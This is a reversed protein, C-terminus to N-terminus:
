EIGTERLWGDLIPNAKGAVETLSSEVDKTLTEGLLSADKVQVGIVKIESPLPVGCRRGLELALPIGVSHPSPARVPKIDSADFVVVTGPPLEQEIADIILVKEYGTLFDILGLGSECVERYDIKDKFNGYVIRGAKPGVGDDTLFENGIAL